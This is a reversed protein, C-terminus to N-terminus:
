HQEDLSVLSAAVALLSNMVSYLSKSDRGCETIKTHYYNSKVSQLTQSVLKRQKKFRDHDCPLKTPRWRRKPQRRTRKVQKIEDNYWPVMNRVKITKTTLPAHQDVLNSLTDQYQEAMAEIESSSNTVLASSM